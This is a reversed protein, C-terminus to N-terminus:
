STYTQPTLEISGAIQRVSRGFVKNKAEFIAKQRSPGTQFRFGVVLQKKKNTLDFSDVCIHYTGADNPSAFTSMTLFNHPGQTHLRDDNDSSARHNRFRQPRVCLVTEKTSNASLVSEDQKTNKTPSRHSDFDSQFLSSTILQLM